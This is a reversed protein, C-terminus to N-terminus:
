TTTSTRSPGTPMTPTTRYVLSPVIDTIWCGTCPTPADFRLANHISSNAPITFDQTTSARLPDAQHHSGPATPMANRPDNFSALTTVSDAMRAREPSSAPVFVVVGFPLVGLKERM